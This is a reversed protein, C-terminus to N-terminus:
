SFYSFSAFFEVLDKDCHATSPRQHQPSRLESRHQAKSLRKKMGATTPTNLEVELVKILEIENVPFWPAFGCNVRLESEINKEEEIEFNVDVDVDAGIGVDVDVDVNVNVDENEDEDECEWIPFDAPRPAPIPM